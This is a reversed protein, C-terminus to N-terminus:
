VIGWARYRKRDTLERPCASGLEQLMGEVAQPSAKLAKAATRVTVLPTSVFLNVLQPM